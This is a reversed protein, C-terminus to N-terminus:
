HLLRVLARTEARPRRRRYTYGSRTGPKGARRAKAVQKDASFCELCVLREPTWGYCYRFEGCAACCTSKAWPMAKWRWKGHLDESM